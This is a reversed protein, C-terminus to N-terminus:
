SAPRLSVQVEPPNRLTQFIVCYREAIELLRRQQEESANSALNVGVDIRPIGVPVTRDVGLTGRFDFLAEAEISGREIAIGMAAAVACLTVGLCAVLADLLMNGSCASPEDGGAALHLASFVAGHDTEVRCAIQQPVLVGRSRFRVVARSPDDRYAEKLPQQRDRLQEPRVM